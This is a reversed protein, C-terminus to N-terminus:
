GALLVRYAHIEMPMLVANPFEFSGSPRLLDHPISASGFKPPVKPYDSQDTLLRRQVSATRSNFLHQLDVRLASNLCSSFDCCSGRHALRIFIYGDDLLELSVVEALEPLVTTNLFRREGTWAAVHQASVTANSFLLIPKAYVDHARRRWTTNSPVEVILSITRRVILKPGTHVGCSKTWECNTYPSIRETENLPEGVGRGDDVLLDRHVMLEVAGDELSAGGLTSDVGVTLQTDASALRAAAVIPFYNGAVPETVRFPFSRKNLRREVLELGNSDTAFTTGTMNTVLRMIIEKGFGDDTDIPGVTVEFEIEASFDNVVITQSIWESINQTVVIVPGALTIVKTPTKQSTSLLPICVSSNPRFIYAGSAQTSESDGTSGAYYCWEQVVDVAMNQIKNVIRTVRQRDDFEIRVVANEVVGGFADETLSSEDVQQEQACSVALMSTSMSPAEIKLFTVFPLMTPSLGRSYSSTPDFLPATASAISFSADVVRIFPNPCAVPMRVLRPGASSSPNVVFVHFVSSWCTMCDSTNLPSYELASIALSQALSAIAASSAVSLSKSYDFTVHQKATGSVADHHQAQAVAEELMRLQLWSTTVNSSASANLGFVLNARVLQLAHLLSSSTRVYLKFSPRSTYFGSWFMHPGDAYPLFDDVHVAPLATKSALRSSVAAAYAEPTSSEWDWNVGERGNRSLTGRKGSRALADGIRAINAFWTEAQMHTFDCGMTMMVDSGGTVSVDSMLLNALRQLWEDLTNSPDSSCNSSLSTDSSPLCASPPVSPEPLLIDLNFDIPPCYTSHLLTAMLVMANSGRSPSPAWWFERTQSRQRESFEQYDIRSVFTSSIGSDQSFLLAQGVSHGFPDIQWQVTVKAGFEDRLFRHGLTVQQLMDAFYPTAEDHSVWGGGAFVIQGNQVFGRALAQVTPKSERFWKSFFAMEVVTFRRTVNSILSTMVSDYTLRVNAHQISNNWGYYYQSPTKLWGVDDHSHSVVHVRINPMRSSSVVVGVLLLLLLLSCTSTNM